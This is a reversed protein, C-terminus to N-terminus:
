DDGERTSKRKQFAVSDVPKIVSNRVWNNDQLGDKVLLNNSTICFPNKTDRKIPIVYEM